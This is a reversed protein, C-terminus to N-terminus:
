GDRRVARVGHAGACRAGPWQMGGQVVGWPEACSTLGQCSAPLWRLPQPGAVPSMCLQCRGAAVPHGWEPRGATGSEVQDLLGHCWPWPSSGGGVSCRVGSGQVGGMCGSGVQRWDRQGGKKFDESGEKLHEKWVTMKSSSFFFTLLVTACRLSSALISTGVAAAAVAGASCASSLSHLGATPVAPTLLAPM